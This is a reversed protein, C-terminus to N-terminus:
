DLDLAMAMYTSCYIFGTSPICYYGQQCIGLTIINSIGTNNASSEFSTKGIEECLELRRNFFFFTIHYFGSIIM